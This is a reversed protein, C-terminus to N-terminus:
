INLINGPDAFERPSIAHRQKRILRQQQSCGVDLIKFEIGANYKRM